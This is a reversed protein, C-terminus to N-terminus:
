HYQSQNHEYNIYCYVLRLLAISTTAIRGPELMQRMGNNINDALVHWGFKTLNILRKQSTFVSVVMYQDHATKAIRLISRTHQDINRNLEM